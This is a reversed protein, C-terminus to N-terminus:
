GAPAGAIKGAFSQLFSNSSEVAARACQAALEPAKQFFLVMGVIILVMLLLWGIIWGHEKLFAGLNGSYQRDIRAFNRVIFDPDFDDIARLMLGELTGQEIEMDIPVFVPVDKLLKQREEKDKWFKVKQFLSPRMPTYCDKAFEFLVLAPKGLTTLYYHENKFNRMEWLLPTGRIKLKRVGDQAVVKARRSLDLVPRRKDGVMKFVVVPINWSKAYLFFLIALLVVGFGVGGLVFALVSVM